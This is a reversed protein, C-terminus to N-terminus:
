ECLAYSVTMDDTVTVTVKTDSVASGAEFVRSYIFEIESTGPKVATFTYHQTGPAGVLPFDTDTSPHPTFSDDTLRISDGTVVAQWGYGTSPNSVMSFTITDGEVGVDISDTLQTDPTVPTPKEEPKVLGFFALITMIFAIIKTFIASM